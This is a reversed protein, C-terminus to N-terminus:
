LGFLLGSAPSAMEFQIQFFGLLGYKEPLSLYLSAAEQKWRLTKKAGLENLSSSMNFVERDVEMPPSRSQLNESLWPSTTRM